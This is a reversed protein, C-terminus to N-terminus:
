EQKRLRKIHRDLEEIKRQSEEIQLKKYEAERRLSEEKKRRAKEAVQKAENIVVFETVHLEVLDPCGFQPYHTAFYTIQARAPGPRAYIRAQAINDVWTKGYGGYGKSHFFKGEQNRVAYLKVLVESM